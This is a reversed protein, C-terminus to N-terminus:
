KNMPFLSNVVVLPLKLLRAIKGNDARYDFHLKQAIATKAAQPLLTVRMGEYQDKCIKYIVANLEDDTYFVKECLAEAVEKYGEIERSIKFFYHRADRFVAEGFNIMCFSAPSIHQGVIAMKAPYDLQHTHLLNRKERVTLDEFRRDARQQNVPLYFCNGAGYPYSFPTHSPNVVYNNRNTYGIQNRLSELSLINVTKGIFDTLNVALHRSDFHKKLRKKFLEFFALVAEKRGCVIFHVHNSMLEFTIVWVGPCDFACMGVISMAVEYDQQDRLIAPHDEPSHLHYFPGFYRLAREFLLKCRGEKEVFSHGQLPFDIFPFVFLDAAMNKLM